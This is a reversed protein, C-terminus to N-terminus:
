RMIPKVELESVPSFDEVLRGTERRHFKVVLSIVNPNPTIYLLPLADAKATVQDYSHDPWYHSVLLKTFFFCNIM